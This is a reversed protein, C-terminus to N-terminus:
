RQTAAPAAAPAPRPPAPPPPPLLKLFEVVADIQAPTYNYKFGPMNPSGDAIQKKAQAERGGEVVTKSLQPGFLPATITPKTHCVGCSQQYLRRGESQVPNLDAPGFEGGHHDQAWAGAISVAFFIGTWAVRMRM